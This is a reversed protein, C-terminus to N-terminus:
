LYYLYSAWDALTHSVGGFFLLFLHIAVAIANVGFVGAKAFLGIHIFQLFLDHIQHLGPVRCLVALHGFGLDGLLGFANPEHDHFIKELQLGNLIARKGQIYELENLTINCRARPHEIM